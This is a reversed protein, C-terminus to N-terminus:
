VKETVEYVLPKGLMLQTQAHLAPLTAFFASTIPLLFWQLHSLPALWRKSSAPAPPRLMSDLVIVVVFPGLSATLLLGALQPLGAFPLMERLVPSMLAPLAGGLTLVFWHTSWLLHNEFLAWARRLRQWFGIERHVLFEKVTYPIDEAGWAHRKAQKYRSVLSRWYTTSCVADASIPLFIPETSVKGQLHFFCKLFMHWDEPIVEPDWYGVQHAMQLSLSYTSQPFVLGHGKCLDALFSISSLTSVLRIPMPVEWINNYLLIPAQWFRQYRQPDTCFKYTLCEFYRPHFCSDADCSTVTLSSLDYELEDVLWHKAWRAAWAENSSKGQVEGPIDGPHVTILMHAFSDQFEDMLPQVREAAGEEREELALVVSIQRSAVSQAAIHQLTVRLKEVREKYSPIIVVHHVEEWPLLVKGDDLAKQYEAYWNTATASKIRWYGQVGHYAVSFSRFFWYADFAIIAWALPWPFLFPAWFLSSIVLWTIAGPLIQACRQLGKGYRTVFQAGWHESVENCKPIVEIEPFTLPETFPFQLVVGPRRVTETGRGLPLEGPGSPQAAISSM